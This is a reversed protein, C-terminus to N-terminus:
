TAPQTDSTDTRCGVNRLKNTYVGKEEKTSLFPLYLVLFKAISIDLNYFEKFNQIFVGGWRPSRRDGRIQQANAEVEQHWVLSSSLRVQLDLSITAVISPGRPVERRSAAM